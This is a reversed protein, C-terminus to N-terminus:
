SASWAAVPMRKCVLLINLLIDLASAEVGMRSQVLCSTLMNPVTTLRELAIGSVSAGVVQCAAVAESKFIASHRRRRRKENLNM